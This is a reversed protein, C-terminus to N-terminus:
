PNALLYSEILEDMSLNVNKKIVELLANMDSDPFIQKIIEARARVEESYSREPNLSLGTTDKKNEHLVENERNWKPNSSQRHCELEAVIQDPVGHLLTNIDSRKKPDLMNYNQVFDLILRTMPSVKEKFKDSLQTVIENTNSKICNSIMHSSAEKAKHERRAIKKKQKAIKEELWVIDEASFQSKIADLEKTFQEKERVSYEGKGIKKILSKARKRNERSQESLRESAEKTEPKDDKREEISNIKAKNQNSYTNEGVKSADMDNKFNEIVDDSEIVLFDESSDYRQLNLANNATEGSPIIFIKISQMKENLQRLMAQLDEESDLMIKDGECDLYQLNWQQPLNKKFIAQVTEILSKFNDPLKSVRHIEHNFCLKISM